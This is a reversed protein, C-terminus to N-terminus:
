FVPLEYLVHIYLKCHASQLDLSAIMEGKGIVGSVDRFAIVPALVVPCSLSFCLWPQTQACTFSVM